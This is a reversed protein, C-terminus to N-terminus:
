RGQACRPWRYFRCCQPRGVQRIDQKFFLRLALAIPLSVKARGKGTCRCCSAQGFCRPILSTVSSVVLREANFLSFSLVVHFPIDNDRPRAPMDTM